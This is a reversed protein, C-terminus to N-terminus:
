ITKWSKQDDFDSLYRLNELNKEIKKVIKPSFNRLIQSLETIEYRAVACLNQPKKQNEPTLFASKQCNVGKASSATSVYDGGIKQPMKRIKRLFKKSNKKKSKLSFEPQRQYLWSNQPLWKDPVKGTIKPCIKDPKQESRAQGTSKRSIKEPFRTYIKIPNIDRTKPANETKERNKASNAEIFSSIKTTKWSKQWWFKKWFQRQLPLDALNWTKKVIKPM